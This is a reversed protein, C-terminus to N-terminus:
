LKPLYVTVPRADSYVKKDTVDTPVLVIRRSKAEPTAAPLIARVKAKQKQGGEIAYSMEAGESVRAATEVPVEIEIEPSVDDVIILIHPQLETAIGGETLLHRVIIGDFPAKITALRVDVEKREVDAQRVSILAKSAQIAAAAVSVQNDADELRAPLFANSQKLKATRDRVSQQQVLQAEAVGLQAKASSLESQAVALSARLQETDIEAVVDGKKVREGVRAPISAIRGVVSTAIKSSRWFVVSGTIPDSQAQAPQVSAAHGIILAVAALFINPSFHRSPIPHRM